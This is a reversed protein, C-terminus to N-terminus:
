KLELVEPSYSNESDADEGEEFRDNSSEESYESKFNKNLEMIRGEIKAFMNLVTKLEANRQKQLQMHGTKLREM